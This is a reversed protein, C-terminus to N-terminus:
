RRKKLYQGKFKTAFMEAAKKFNGKKVNLAFVVASSENDIVQITGEFKTHSGAFVGLMAVKAVKVMAADERQSSATRITWQAKAEDTVISVPVKKKVFAASIASGFDIHTAKHESNSTDVTQSSEIYVLPLDAALAVLTLMPLAALYVLTRTARM